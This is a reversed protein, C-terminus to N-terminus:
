LENKDLRVRNAIKELSVLAYENAQLNLTSKMSVIFLPAQGTFMMWCYTNVGLFTVWASEPIETVDLLTNGYELLDSVNDIIVTTFGTTKDYIFWNINNVSFAFPTFQTLLMGQQSITENLPEFKTLIRLNTFSPPNTFVGNLTSNRWNQAYYVQAKPSTDTGLGIFGSEFNALPADLTVDTIVGHTLSTRLTSGMKTLTLSSPMYSRTQDSWTLSNNLSTWSSDGPKKYWVTPAAYSCYGWIKNWGVSLNVTSYKNQTGSATGTAYRSYIITSNVVLEIIDAGDISFSWSGPTEVYFYGSISRGRGREVAYNKVSYHNLVSAIDLTYNGYNLSKYLSGAATYVRSGDTAEISATGMSLKTRPFLMDWEALLNSIGLKYTSETVADLTHTPLTDLHIKGSTISLDAAL